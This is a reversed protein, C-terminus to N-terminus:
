SSLRIIGKALGGTILRTWATCDLVVTYLKVDGGTRTPRLLMATQGAHWLYSTWEPFVPVKVLQIIHHRLQVMAQEDSIYFLHTISDGNYNPQTICEHVLILSTFKASPINQLFATYMGTNGEGATLEVAPADWPVCNAIEGRALKARIAEVAMRPGACNLYVCVGDHVAWGYAWVNGTISGTLEGCPSQPIPHLTRRNINIHPQVAPISTAKTQRIASLVADPEDGDSLELVPKIVRIKPIDEPEDDFVPEPEPLTEVKPAIKVGLIAEAEEISCPDDHDSVPQGESVEPEIPTHATILAQVADPLTKGVFYWSKRRRSWRCGHRKLLDRHPYTDGSIWHWPHKDADLQSVEATISSLSHSAPNDPQTGYQGLGSYSPCRSSAKQYTAQERSPFTWWTEDRWVYVASYTDQRTVSEVTKMQEDTLRLLIYGRKVQVQGHIHIYHYSARKSSVDRAHTGFVALLVQSTSGTYGVKYASIKKKTRPDTVRQSGYTAVAVLQRTM